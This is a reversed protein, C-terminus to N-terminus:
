KGGAFADGGLEVKYKTGEAGQVIVRLVYTGSRDIPFSRTADANAEVRSMHYTADARGKDDLLALSMWKSAGQRGAVSMQTLLTGAKLKAGFYYYASATGGPFAGTIVGEPDVQTPDLFSRSNGAEPAPATRKPLASGGLAVRFSTTEPGQTAVRILYRGSADIPFVRTGENNDGAGATIYYSEIKGGSGNLLGLTLTKYKNGGQLAIQTALAGAKLDVAFYYSTETEGAPYNGAIVGTPPVPTPNAASTSFDGAQASAAVAVFGAALITRRFVNRM